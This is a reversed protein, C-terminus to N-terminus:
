MFGDSDTHGAGFTLLEVTRHLGHVVLRDDFTISPLRLELEPLSAALARTDALDIELSRRTREDQAQALQAAIEDPYEPHARMEEMIKMGRTAILDRTGQSSIIVADPFVQNGNIHDANYHSNVVYRVPKDILREAARLLERAPSLSMFTDFVLTADGLDVIGANGLTGTGPTSIAAYVGDAVAYLIFYPSPYAEYQEDTLEIVHSM